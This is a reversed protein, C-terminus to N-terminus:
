YYLVASTSFHLLGHPSIPHPKGGSYKCYGQCDGGSPGYSGVTVTLNHDTYPQCGRVLVYFRSLQLGSVELIICPIAGTEAEAVVVPIHIENLQSPRLLVNVLHRHKLCLVEVISPVGRQALSGVGGGNGAIDRHAAIM